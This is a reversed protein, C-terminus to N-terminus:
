VGLPPSTLTMKLAEPRNEIAHVALVKVVVLPHVPYEAAVVDMRRDNEDLSEVM